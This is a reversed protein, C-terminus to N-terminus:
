VQNEPDRAKLRSAMRAGTSASPLGGVVLDFVLEDRRYHQFSHPTCLLDPRQAVVGLSLHLQREEIREVYGRVERWQSTNGIVAYGYQDIEPRREPPPTSPSGAFKLHVAGTDTGELNIWVDHAPADRHAVLADLMSRDLEVSAFGLLSIGGSTTRDLVFLELVPSSTVINLEYTQSWV